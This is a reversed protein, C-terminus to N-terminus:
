FNYEFSYSSTVLIARTFLSLFVWWLPFGGPRKGAGPLQELGAAFSAIGLFRCGATCNTPLKSSDPESFFVSTSTGKLMTHQAFEPTGLLMNEKTAYVSLTIEKSLKREIWICLNKLKELQSPDNHRIQLRIVVIGKGVQVNSPYADSMGIYKKEGDYVLMCQSEYASEYLVGQLLPARPIFSGNEEMEFRYNLILEYANVEKDTLCSSDRDDQLPRIIGEDMPRLSSQWKTLKASPNLVENAIDNYLRVMSGGSGAIMNVENPVPRIGRFQVGVDISTARRTSWYRALVIECTVNSEIPVSSIHIQGPALSLRKNCENDRYAAHELLQVTHFAIARSTKDTTTAVDRSDVITLDMWTSGSPPVVYFRKIETPEFKLVGLQVTHKVPMVPKTLSIPVQFLVKQSSNYTYVGSVTGIHLGPGLNTPDVEIDFTRGDNTLVLKSATKIWNVKTELTVSLLFDLKNKSLIINSEEKSFKPTVRITFSQLTMTEEMGRLYIGRSRRCANVIEVDYGIDEAKDSLNNKIYEWAQNVQILGRGQELTTRNPLVQATNELARRIRAVTVPINEMKCASILLAVCGTAHPCAMSTGNMLQSKSMCWQPITAIAGGPASLTVGWDGDATPGVSSWTFTTDLSNSDIKNNTADDDDSAEIECPLISYLTEQMDPTVVAAISICSSFAGGPANTTSLAPGHNGAACVIMTNYKWVCEEVCQIFRRGSTPHVVAEGYSINIVDCHYQKSSSALEIARILASGTEMTGLRPDGIKFSILHIKPNNTTSTNSTATTAAIQAVHTGHPSCDTVISLLKGYNYFQIAFNVNHINEKTTPVQFTGYEQEIGFSTLPKIAQLDGSEYVDIVTRYNTGDWFVVCDYVPGPDHEDDDPKLFKQLIDLQALYDDRQRIQGTTPQNKSYTDNWEGLKQHLSAIHQDVDHKRLHYNKRCSSVLAKPFLHYGCKMGLRVISKTSSTEKDVKSEDITTQNEMDNSITLPFPQINWEMSLKLRRGTLGTVEYHYSGEPVNEDDIVKELVGEETMDVDGSSTCDICDILKARTNGHFIAPDIGTDLIGITVVVDSTDTSKDKMELTRREHFPIIGTAHQPILDWPPDQNKEEM